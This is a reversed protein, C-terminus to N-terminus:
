RAMEAKRMEAVLSTRNGVDLKAFLSQLHTKVTPLSIALEEGIEHNTLGKGVLDAIELERKSLLFERALRRRARDRMVRPHLALSAEVYRQMSQALKWAEPSVCDHDDRAVLGLGAVARDEHWFVMELADKIGSLAMYPRYLDLAQSEACARQLTQTRAQRSIMRVPSCPDHAYFTSQYINLRDLDVAECAAIQMRMGDDIWYFISSPIHTAEMAFQLLEVIPRAEEGDLVFQTASM